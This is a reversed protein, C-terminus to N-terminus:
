LEELARQAVDVRVSLRRAAEEQTIPDLELEAAMPGIRTEDQGFGAARVQAEARERAVLRIEADLTHKRNDPSRDRSTFEYTEDLHKIKARIKDLPEGTVVSGDPSARDIYRLMTNRIRESRLVNLAKAEEATLVAGARYRDTLEFEYHSIRIKM